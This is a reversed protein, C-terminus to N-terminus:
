HVFGWVAMPTLRPARVGGIEQIMCAASVQALTMMPSSHSGELPAQNLCLILRAHACLACGISSSCPARSPVRRGTEAEGTPEGQGKAPVRWARAGSGPRQEAVESHVGM